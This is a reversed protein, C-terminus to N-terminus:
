RQPPLQGARKQLAQFMDEDTLFYAKTVYDRDKYKAHCSQCSRLMEGSVSVVRASKPDGVFYEWDGNQPDFGAERKRMTTLVTSKGLDPDKEGPKGVHLSKGPFKEKVIVSGVPFKLTSHTISRMMADIGKNNVYVHVYFNWHPSERVPTKRAYADDLGPYGRCLMATADNM